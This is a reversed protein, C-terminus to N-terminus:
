GHTGGKDTLLSSYATLLSCALTDALFAMSVFDAFGVYRSDAPLGLVEFEWNSM